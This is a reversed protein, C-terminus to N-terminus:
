RKRFRKILALDLRDPTIKGENVKRYFFEDWEDWALVRDEILEGIVKFINGHYKKGNDAEVKIFPEGNM